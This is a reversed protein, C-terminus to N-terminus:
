IHILSLKPHTGHLKNRRKEFLSLLDKGPLNYMERLDNFKNPKGPISPAVIKEGVTLDEIEITKINARLPRGISFRSLSNLNPRLSKPKQPIYTLNKDKLKFNSIDLQLRSIKKAKRLLIFETKGNNEKNYFDRSSALYNYPKNNSRYELFVSALSVLFGAFLLISTFALYKTFATSELDFLQKSSNDNLFVPSKKFGSIKSSAIYRDRICM